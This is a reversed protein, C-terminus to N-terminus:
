KVVHLETKKFMQQVQMRGLEQLVDAGIGEPLPTKEADEEALGEVQKMVKMLAVSAQVVVPLNDNVAGTKENIITGQTEWAEKIVRRLNHALFEYDTQLNQRRFQAHIKAEAAVEKMVEFLNANLRAAIEGYSLGRMFLDYATEYPLSEPEGPLMRRVAGLVEM